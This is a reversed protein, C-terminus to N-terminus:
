EVKTATVEVQMKGKSDLDDASYVLTPKGIPILVASDWRNQRIVPDGRLNSSAGGTNDDALSSIDATLNFGLKDGLEKVQRVDFNIGVDVYQFQTVNSSPAAATVIPVRAGTRIQQSAPAGNVNRSNTDVTTQYSRANAVKGADNVEEVVFMLKFYHDPPSDSTEKPSGQQAVSAMPAGLLALTAVLVMTKKM